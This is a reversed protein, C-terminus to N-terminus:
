LTVRQHLRCGLVLEILANDLLAHLRVIEPLAHPIQEHGEDAHVGCNRRLTSSKGARSAQNVVSTPM